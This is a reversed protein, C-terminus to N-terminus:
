AALATLWEAPFAAKVAQAVLLHGYTDHHQNTDAVHWSTAQVYATASFDPDTGAQIRSKQFNYLDVYVVSAVGGVAVNEATVAAQQAARVTANTAAPTVLTDGGTTYNLYNTSVVFIRQCKTPATTALAVRGWGAEGALPYRHEWVTQGAQTGTITAAHSTLWAAAGGTTSTDSLVVYRQGMEGTAPLNAQGAVTVGGGLGDGIAGYKLSKIMAQINAQTTAQSISAGPDNVGGYIGGITPTDYFQMTDVRALMQTTTDGGVGFARAQTNTYGDRRLGSALRPAWTRFGDVGWGPDYATQSDGIVTITKKSM